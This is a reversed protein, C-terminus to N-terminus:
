RLPGAVEAIRAFADFREAQSAGLNFDPVIFEDIGAARAVERVSQEDRDPFGYRLNDLLSGRFLVPSHEVVVIRRRVDDLRYDGLPRGDLMSGNMKSMATACDKDNDFEVFGFGKSQGTERDTIIRGAQTDIFFMKGPTIRGCSVIKRPEIDLVGVESAM